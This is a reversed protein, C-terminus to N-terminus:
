TSIAQSLDLLPQNHCTLNLNSVVVVASSLRKRAAADEAPDRLVPRRVYDQNPPDRMPRGLGGQPM